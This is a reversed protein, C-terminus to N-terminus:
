FTSLPILQFRTGLLRQLIQTKELPPASLGKEWRYVTVVDVKLALALEDQTLGLRRRAYAIRAPLSTPEPLPNYGLFEIIKPLHRIMPEGVGREWNQISGWHVGILKALDPQM